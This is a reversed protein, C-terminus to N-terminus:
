EAFAFQALDASTVPTEEVARRARDIKSLELNAKAILAKGSVRKISADLTTFSSLSIRRVLETKGEPIEFFESLIVKSLNGAELAEKFANNRDTFNVGDFNYINYSKGALKSSEKYDLTDKYAVRECDEELLVITRPNQKTPSKPEVITTAGAEQTPIEVKTQEITQSM